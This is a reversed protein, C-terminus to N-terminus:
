SIQKILKDFAVSDRIAIQSLVKRNLIINKQKCKATFESYNMGYENVTANLRTIWLSRFERKKTKRDRTAFTLAKIYRENAPRFLNSSSGIFGETRNLIKKRRRQAVFGRKVRTM